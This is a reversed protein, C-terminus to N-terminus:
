YPYHMRYFVQPQAPSINILIQNTGTSGPVLFWSNTDSLSVANSQLEWGTYNAPWTMTLASGTVSTLINTPTSPLTNGSSATVYGNTPNFTWTWPSPGTVSAFNGVRNPAVFVHYSSGNTIPSANVNGLDLNSVILAGAYSMLGQCVIRSNYATPSQATDIQVIATSSANLTLSNTVVLDGINSDPTIIGGSQVNVAGWITGVGGLTGGNAVTVSGTGTASGNAGNRVKLEGGSVTTGGSYNNNTNWLTVIGGGVKNVGGTGSISGNIDLSGGSINTLILNRNLQFSGNMSCFSSNIDSGFLASNVFPSSNVQVSRGLNLTPTSLLLTPNLSATAGEDELWFQVTGNATGNTFATNQNSLYFRKGSNVKNAISSVTLWTGPAVVDATRDLTVSAGVASVSYVGDASSGGSTTSSSDGNYLVLVRDNVALTTADLAVSSNAVGTFQGNANAGGTASYTGGLNGATAIRVSALGSAPRYGGLQVTSVVGYNTTYGGGGLTGTGNAGGQDNKTISLTGNRVVPTAIFNNNVNDLVVKGGGIKEWVPAKVSNTSWSTQTIAGRFITTGGDVQKLLLGVCTAPTGGGSPNNFNVPNWYETTVPQNGGITFLNIVSTNPSCTIASQDGLSVDAATDSLLGVLSSQQTGTARFISIPNNGSNAGLANPDRFYVTGQEIQTGFKYGYSRNTGTGAYSNNNTVTFSGYSTGGYWIDLAGSGGQLQGGIVVNNTVNPDGGAKFGIYASNFGTAPSVVCNGDLNFLSTNYRNQLFVPQKVDNTQLTIPGAWNVTWGVNYNALVQYGSSATQIIIPNTYTASATGTGNRFYLGANATDNTGLVYAGTFSGNQNTALYLNNIITFNNASSLANGLTVNKSGIKRFDQSISLPTNITTDNASGGDITPTAGSSLTLSSTGYLTYTGAGFTLNGITRSADNTVLQTGTVTFSATNGAGDAITSGSWKSSDSWNGSPGAWTGSQAFVDTQSIALLLGCCATQIIQLRKM